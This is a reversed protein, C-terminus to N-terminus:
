PQADPVSSRVDYVGGTAAGPPPEAPSSGVSLGPAADAPPALVVWDSKQTVPDIPMARLYRRSVLEELREPYRGNDAYFKDISDRITQLNQAQVTRKGREISSFYRPVALSALLGILTVVVLLEILTFGRGPHHRSVYGTPAHM